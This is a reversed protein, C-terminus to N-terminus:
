DHNSDLLLCCPSQKSFPHYLGVRTEVELVVVTDLMALEVDM